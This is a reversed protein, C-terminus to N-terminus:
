LLKVRREQVIQVESNWTCTLTGNLERHRLFTLKTMVPALQCQDESHWQDVFLHLDHLCVGECQKVLSSVLGAFDLVHSRLIGDDGPVAAADVGHIMLM